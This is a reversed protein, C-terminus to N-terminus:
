ILDDLSMSGAASGSNLSKVFSSGAASKSGAGAASAGANLTQRTRAANNKQAIEQGAQVVDKVKAAPITGRSEKWLRNAAKLKATITLKQAVAPDKHDVRINILEPYRALMQNFPTNPFQQGGYSLPKDDVPEVLKGVDEYGKESKLNKMVDSFSNQYESMKREQQLKPIVDGFHQKLSEDLKQQVLQQIQPLAMYVFQRKFMANNIEAVKGFDVNGQADPEYADSLAKLAAAQNDWADGVDGFKGPELPKQEAEKPSEQQPKAEAPTEEGLLSREYATLEDAAGDKGGADTQDGSKQLTAQIAELAKRQKPNALDLGYEAALAALPDATEGTAEPQVEEGTIQGNDVPTEADTASDAASVDDHATGAQDVASSGGLTDLSDEASLLGSVFSGGASSETGTSPTATTSVQDSM